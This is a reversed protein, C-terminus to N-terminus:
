LQYLGIYWRVLSDGFLSALFAAVALFTGFPLRSGISRGRLRLIALGVVAGTLSALFLVVWVQQWGLFAGIMALMKVDGLGMAEVGKVQYWVWRITWPIAAGLAAGIVSGVIGPPLGVSLLLGLVIGPYTIVNPLRMTELDTGFLVILLATLLLRAGLLPLDDGFFVGQAFFCLSTTIEVAPYKIGIPTGCNRCKGALMVFSLVPINDHWAIPTGCKPCRSPPSVISQGAPLRSICVNLFSGIMLGFIGLLIPVITM